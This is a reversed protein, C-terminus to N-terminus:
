PKVEVWGKFRRGDTYRVLYYYSGAMGAGGWRFGRESSQFVQRGGARSSKSAPSAHPRLLRGAPRAHEPLREPRRRQAHHYQAPPLRRFGKGAGGRLAGRAGAAAPVCPGTETLTFRVLLGDTVTAAAPMRLQADWTFLAPPRRGRREPGHVAHGRGGPRLGRRHRHPGPRQPRRRHRALTATYRSAWCWACWPRPATAPRRRPRSLAPSCRARCQAGAHGHLGRAPHRAQAPQLRQRGGDHRAFVGQGPHRHLRSLVPHGHPYRARRRRAGHRQHSTTFSPAPGTFNVPRTTLTLVSNPDPDTFRITLCRNGGPLLRLTDRGPRYPVASGPCQLRCRPRPM